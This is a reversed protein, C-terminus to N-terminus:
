EAGAGAAPDPVINDRGRLILSALNDVFALALICAGFAMPAQVLWMPTADQGQSIDGLKHSWRVMRVAYWALYCSAATAVGFCWLEGWFRFRGMAVLAISVRIHAGRNLAHAFALFSATAMLYGAYQTSGPFSIGVWRAIMQAVIVVLMAVLCLAAVGASAAYLGDLFRRLPPDSSYIRM